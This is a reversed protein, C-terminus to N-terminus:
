GRSIQTDFEPFYNAIDTVDFRALIAEKPERALLFEFCARVFAEPSDHPGGLREVDSTRATVDHVTSGQGDRVTVQYREEGVRLM